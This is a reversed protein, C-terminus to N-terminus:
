YYWKEGTKDVYFRSLNKGKAENFIDFVYFKM